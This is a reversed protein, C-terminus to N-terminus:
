LYESKDFLFLKSVSLISRELLSVVFGGERM